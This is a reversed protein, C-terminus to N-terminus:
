VAFDPPVTIVGPYRISAVREKIRWGDPTKVVIDDNDGGVFSGNALDPSM